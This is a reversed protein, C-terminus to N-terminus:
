RVPAGVPQGALGIRRWALLALTCAAVAELVGMALFALTTGGAEVVAAGLLPGAAFGLSGAQHFLGVGAGQEDAPALDRVLAFTPAFMLAGVVGGAAMVGWLWPLETLPIALLMAGYAASGLIVFGLRGWRDSLKGAVPQALGFCLLFASMLAGISAPPLGRADALYLPLIGVLFGVTLRDLFSLGVPWALAPVRKLLALSRALPVRRRQALGAPLLLPVTGAAAILLAGGVHFPLSLARQGLVGGLASGGAVGLAMGLGVAGIAAGARGRETRALVTAHLATMALITFAGELFRDALLLPYTPISPEVALTVGQGLLAIGVLLRARGTADVLAGWLPALLVYAALNVSVFLSTALPGTDFRDVVFADLLPYPLTSALMLVFTGLTGAILLRKSAM